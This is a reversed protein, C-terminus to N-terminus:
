KDTGRQARARLKAIRLAAGVQQVLSEDDGKNVFTGDFGLGKAREGVQPDSTYLYFLTKLLSASVAARFSALMDGGTIGPMHWDIIVLDAVLLHRAAGVTQTTAVVRYGEKELRLKIRELLTESDDIVLIVSEERM